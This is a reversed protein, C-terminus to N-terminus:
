ILFMDFFEIMAYLFITFIKAANKDVELVLVPYAKCFYESLCIRWNKGILLESIADRWRWCFSGVITPDKKISNLITVRAM